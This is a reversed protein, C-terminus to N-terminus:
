WPRHSTSKGHEVIRGGVVGSRASGYEGGGEAEDAPKMDLGDVAGSGKQGAVM